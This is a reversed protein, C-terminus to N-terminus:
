TPPPGSPSPSKNDCPICPIVRGQVTLSLSAFPDEDSLVLAPPTTKRKKKEEDETVVAASAEDGMGFHDLPHDPAPPDPAPKEPEKVAPVPLLPPPLLKLTDSEDPQDEDPKVPARKGRIQIPFRELSESVEKCM